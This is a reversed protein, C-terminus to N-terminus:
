AMKRAVKKRRVSTNHTHKVAYYFEIKIAFERKKWVCHEGAGSLFSHIRSRTAATQHALAADFFISIAGFKGPSRNLKSFEGGERSNISLNFKREAFV